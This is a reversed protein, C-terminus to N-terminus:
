PGSTSSEDDTFRGVPAPPTNGTRSAHREEAITRGSFGAEGSSGASPQSGAAGSAAGSADGATQSEASGRRVHNLVTSAREGAIDKGRQKLDEVQPSRVMETARRRLRELQRRGSPQGAFYGIAAAAAYKLLSM